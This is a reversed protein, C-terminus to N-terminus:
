TVSRKVSKRHVVTFSLLHLLFELNKSSWAKAYVLDICVGSVSHVYYVNIDQPIVIVIALCAEIWCSLLKGRSPCM